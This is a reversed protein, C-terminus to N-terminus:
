HGCIEEFLKVFQAPTLEEARVRSGWGMEQLVKIPEVKNSVGLSLLNKALLKRRHSFSCKVFTVFGEMYPEVCLRKFSLVRSAVRPVPYFSRPSFDVVRDIGWFSQSVVSLFGYDKERPRALIRQAVEKQFMLLMNKINPAGTCVDVVLRSSIRYPLNSVLTFDGKAGLAVSNVEGKVLSRDGGMAFIRHPLTETALSGFSEHSVRALEGWDFKLADCELVRQGQSRWYDALVRDLEMLILPRGLGVLHDTLAGLGPGIELLNPNKTLNTHQIIKSIGEEDILFNQGMSRKPFIGLELLRKKWKEIM